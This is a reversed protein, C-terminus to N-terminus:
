MVLGTDTPQDTKDLLSKRDVRSAFQSDVEKLTRTLDGTARTIFDSSIAYHIPEKNILQHSGPTGCRWTEPVYGVCQYAPTTMLRTPMTPLALTAVSTVTGVHSLDKQDTIFNLSALQPTGQSFKLYEMWNKLDATDLEENQGSFLGCLLSVAFKVEKNVLERASTASNELYHTIVPSKRLTAISEYSKLTKITNEIEIRTDTSGIVIIIVQEGRAKLESVLLPGIVSGSGGSASHVVINFATPKFRQLIALANKAIDEYNSIRLKGSGDVGEFVFINEEAIQKNRLNSRSTDIYCPIMSAFGADPKGRVCELESIINTAAGGCAYIMVQNAPLNANTM